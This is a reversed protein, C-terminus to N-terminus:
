AVATDADYDVEVINIYGDDAGLNVKQEILKQLASISCNEQAEVHFKRKIYQQLDTINNFYKKGKLNGRIDYEIVYRVPYYVNFCDNSQFIGGELRESQYYLQIKGGYRRKLLMLWPDIHPGCATETRISFYCDYGDEGKIYIDMDTLQDRSDVKMKNLIINNRYGLEKMVDAVKCPSEKLLEDRLVKWLCKLMKKDRSVFTISNRCIDSM